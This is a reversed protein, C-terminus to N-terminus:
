IVSNYFWPMAEAALPNVLTLACLVYSVGLNSFESSIGKTIFSSIIVLVNKQLEYFNNNCLVRINYNFPNGTPYCINCKISHSLEARYEWIEILERVFRILRARDLMLFWTYHSYHGAENIRQFLELSTNENQKQLSINPQETTLKLNITIGLINSLKIYSIISNFVSSNIKERTYPNLIEKATNKIFLNYISIINFGWLNNNEEFAFFHDNPIESLQELTFFDTDNKCNNKYKIQNKLSKIYKSVLYKKAYKQIIIISCAERLYNYIRQILEYKKGTKKLKFEKCIFKLYPITYKKKYFFIYDDKKPIEYDMRINSKCKSKSNNNIKANYEQLNAINDM